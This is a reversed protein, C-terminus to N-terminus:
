RCMKKNQLMNKRFVNNSIKLVIESFKCPDNYYETFGSSLTGFCMSQFISIQRKKGRRLGWGEQLIENTFLVQLVREYHHKLPQEFIVNKPTSDLFGIPFNTLLAKQRLNEINMRMSNENFKLTLYLHLFSDNQFLLWLRDIKLNKYPVDNWVTSWVISTTKSFGKLLM